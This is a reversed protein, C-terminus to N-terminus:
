RDTRGLWYEVFGRLAPDDPGRADYRRDSTLAVVPARVGTQRRVIVAQGAAQVAPTAPGGTDTALARLASTEREDSFLLVVNGPAVVPRAGAARTVGPGRTGSVTADDHANFYALAAIVGAVAVLVGAVAVGIRRATV